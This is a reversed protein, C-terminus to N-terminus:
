PGTLLFFTFVELPRDLNPIDKLGLCKESLWLATLAQLSSALGIMLPPLIVPLSSQGTISIGLSYNLMFSGLWIAPWLQKGGLMLTALAIGAPPWLPSAYDPPISLKLGLWGSVFMLLSVIVFRYLFTTM